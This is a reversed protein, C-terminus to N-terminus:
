ARITEALTAYVMNFEDCLRRMVVCYAPINALHIEGDIAKAIIENMEKALFEAIEIEDGEIEDHIIQTRLNDFYRDMDSDM